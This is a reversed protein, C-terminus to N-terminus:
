ELGELFAILTRVGYGTGGKVTYGYASAENFAPGAIDIHGWPIHKKDDAAVAEAGDTVQGDGSEAAGADHAGGSPVFERLFAAASMAGGLRGGMHKFDAVDSDLTARIEEAIPMPWVAEGAFGGAETLAVQLDDDNAMIAATRSGLAVMAAGTLTAVDIIADPASEVALALGDAMVLRGEADTNIIEVTSGDRMTVVDGPRQAAGGPMNEALCLYATVDVPLELEAAALVTGLVAAAGGMDCKMTAMSDAPKICLGGSDFTIGKGILAVTTTAGEPRYSLTVIRPPHVSGQGVGVIGGFGGEVLASEDLVEVSLSDHEGALEVARDAFTEPYLVNPSTNVLDRALCQYAAVVSARAVADALEESSQELLVTVSTPGVQKAARRERVKASLHEVFRYSGLAAGEALAGVVDEDAVPAVVAVQRHASLHRAAAGAARRWKEPALKEPVGAGLGVVVILKAAVGPAGVVATVSDAKGSAAVAELVSEVHAQTEQPLRSGPVLVARGSVSTAFVVVADVGAEAASQVSVNIDIVFFREFQLFCPCSTGWQTCAGAM